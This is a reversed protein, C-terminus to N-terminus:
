NANEKKVQAKYLSGFMGVCNAPAGATAVVVLLLLLCKYQM